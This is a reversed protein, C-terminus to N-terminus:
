VHLGQADGNTFTLGNVRLTGTTVTLNARTTATTGEGAITGGNTRLEGEVVCGTDDLRITGGTALELRGAAVVRSQGLLRVVGATRPMLVGRVVADGNVTITGGTVDLTTGASVTLRAVTGTVTSTVVGPGVALVSDGAA